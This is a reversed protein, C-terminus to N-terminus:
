IGGNMVRQLLAPRDLKGNANLPLSPLAFLRAPVMYSPIEQRLGHLLARVDAAGDAPVYCGILEDRTADFVCAAEAIGPQACLAADIEGLEIRYGQHKVLMSSRCVFRFGAETRQVIDGTRYAARGDACLPFREATEEPRGLYGSGLLPEALLVLEGEESVAPSVVEMSSLPQGLPLAAEQPFDKDEARYAFTFGMETSGYINVLEAGPWAAHLARLVPQPMVEGCFSLFALPPLTEAAELAGSRVLWAFASPVWFVRDVGWAALQALLPLPFLFDRQSLLCTTCGVALPAFVDQLSLAYFFPTQNALVSTPQIDFWAATRQAYRCLAAQSVMVGKPVGTSGSTFMVYALDSPTGAAREVRCIGAADDVPAAEAWAERCVVPADSLDQALGQHAADTLLLAPSVTRAIKQLRHVPMEPDMLVYARGCALVGFMLMLCDIGKPLCIAVCAGRQVRAAIRAGIQWVSAALVGFTVERGAERYAVKEPREREQMELLEAVFDSM